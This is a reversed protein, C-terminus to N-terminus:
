NLTAEGSFATNFNIIVQNINVYEVEGECKNGATDIVTVSPLKGLNHTISWITAPIAQDHLYNETVSGSPVFLKNDTGSSLANGSDTSILDSSDPIDELLALTGTGIPITHTNLSGGVELDNDIEFNGETTVRAVSHVLDANSADTNENICFHLTGIGGNGTREFIIAGKRNAGATTVGFLIGGYDGVTNSERNLSWAFGNASRNVSQMQTFTKAGTITQITTLTVYNSLAANTIFGATNSFGGLEIDSQNGGLENWNIGTIFGANNNFGSLGINSQTGTIQLWTVGTIYQADNNFGSIDVLSQSGGIQNWNLGSIFNSPNSADYKNDLATQLGTINSIIHTHATNAKGDLASQLGTIESIIHSHASPIFSSPIGFLDSYLGSFAVPALDSADAKGNLIIQLNTIDSIAHTHSVNAKGNLAAQLGTIDAIIHVHATPLFSSPIDDLDDYSNSFATAGLDTSNAKSDLAIQLGTVESIIHSHVTNAKGDLAAQLGNIESIAHNHASPNFASPIDDLDLYSNSFAAAGLDVIDAKDQLDLKTAIVTTNVSLLDSALGSGTLTIDSQVTQVGWNDGVGPGGGGIPLNFYGKIGNIDTGYYKSEGPNVADNVLSLNRNTTLSGGGQLSGLTNIQLTQIVYGIDNFFGSINVDSPNGAINSWEVVGLLSKNLEYWELNEKHTVPSIPDVSRKIPNHRHNRM